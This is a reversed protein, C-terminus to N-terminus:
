TMEGDGYAEEVLAELAAAAEEQAAQTSAALLQRCLAEVATVWGVDDRLRAPIPFGRLDGIRIRNFSEKFLGECHARVHRAAAASNLVACLALPSYQAGLRISFIGYRPATGPAAPAAVLAGGRGCLERVFVRPAQLTEGHEGQRALHPGFRVFERPPHCLFRRVDRGRLVPTTGPAAEAFTFPRSKLVAPSQPPRGRGLRYPEIGSTVTGLRDLAVHQPRPVFVTPEALCASWSAGGPPCAESRGVASIAPHDSPRDLRGLAYSVLTTTRGGRRSGRKRGLVLVARVTARPFCHTPLVAVLDIYCDETLRARLMRGAPAAIAQGPLVLGFPGGARLLDLGLEVFHCYPDAITPFRALGNRRREGWPPNNVLADIPAMREMIELSNGVQLEVDGGLADTAALGREFMQRSATVAAPERDIGIFRVDSYRRLAHACELLIAAGEITPDLITRCPGAPGLHRALHRAIAAGIEPPTPYSGYATRRRRANRLAPAGDERQEPVLHVLMAITASIRRLDGLSETVSRRSLPAKALLATLAVPWPSKEALKALAEVLGPFDRRLEAPPWRQLAGMEWQVASADARVNAVGAPADYALRGRPPDM